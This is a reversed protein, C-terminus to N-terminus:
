KVVTKKVKKRPIRVATARTIPQQKTKVLNLQHEREWEGIYDRTLTAVNPDRVLQIQFVMYGLQRFAVECSALYYEWMRCFREGLLDKVKHRNAMFRTRWHLLTEAYHQHLIEIDTVYLNAREIPILTESLSPCYGGPFIYKQLWPNAHTPGESQSISHLLAIGDENLLAKIQDFFQRYHNVGVHEFMGVSVIRDYKGKEERYDRLYFRVRDALGAEKARENSVKFQERSLTVGTVDVNAVRALYLALDGWGSGIDLVKQGPQLRLKAALHRKKNEQATELDDDLSTFYACSYLQGKDLFLEYLERPLDYHHVINKHSRHIPNHQQIFRLYYAIKKSLTRIPSFTANKLNIACLNIFDYISGQELTIQEDMYGEGLALEPQFCLRWEIWKSHLRIAVKPGIPSGLFIHQKGTVDIISLTGIKIFEKLLYYLM